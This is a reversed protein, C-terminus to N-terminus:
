KSSKTKVPKLEKRDYGIYSFALVTSADPVSISFKGDIDTVTGKSQGKIQVNVGPLSEGKEDVVVGSVPIQAMALASVAVSLLLLYMRLQKM